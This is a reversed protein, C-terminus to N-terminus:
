HKFIFLLLLLLLHKFLFNLIGSIYFQVWLACFLFPKWAFNLTATFNKPHKLLEFHRMTHDCSYWTLTMHGTSSTSPSTLHPRTPWSLPPGGTDRQSPRTSGPSFRRRERSLRTQSPPPTRGCLWDRWRRDRSLYHLLLLLLSLSLSLSLSPSHPTSFSTQHGVLLALIVNKRKLLAKSKNVTSSRRSVSQPALSLHTVLYLNEPTVIFLSVGPNTTHHIPLSFVPLYAKQCGWQGWHTSGVESYFAMVDDNCWQYQRSEVWRPPAPSLLSLWSGSAAVPALFPLRPSRWFQPQPDCSVDCSVDYPMVHYM